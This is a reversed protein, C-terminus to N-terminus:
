YKKLRNYNARPDERLNMGLCFLLDNLPVDTVIDSTPNNKQIETRVALLV